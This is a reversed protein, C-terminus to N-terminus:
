KLQLDVKRVIPYADGNASILDLRYQLARDIPSLTFSEAPVERWPASALASESAATRVHRRVRAGFSARADIKLRGDRYPQAWTFARSTFNEEYRRNYINGIDEPWIYHPGTAPLYQVKPSKFRNGDNFYIPSEARHGADVSHAVFALDLKGDGNFDAIEVASGSDVDLATRRSVAYGQASGWYIYSRQHERTLEGLYSPAVIDLFGDGGLDAV